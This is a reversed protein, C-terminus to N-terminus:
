GEVWFSEQLGREQPNSQRLRPPPGSTQGPHGGLAQGTHRSLVGLIGEPWYLPGM